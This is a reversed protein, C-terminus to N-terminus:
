PCLGTTKEKPPLPNAGVTGHVGTYDIKWQSACNELDNVTSRVCTRTLTRMRDDHGAYESTDLIGFMCECWRVADMRFAARPAQQSKTLGRARDSM